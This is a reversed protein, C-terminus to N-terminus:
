LSALATPTEDEYPELAERAREVRQQAKRLAVEAEWLERTATNLETERELYKEDLNKM